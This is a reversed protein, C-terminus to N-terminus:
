PGAETSPGHRQWWAPVIGKNIKRIEGAIKTRELEIEKLENNIRNQAVRDRKEIASRQRAKADNYKANIEGSKARYRSLDIKKAEKGEQAGNKDDPEVPFAVAEDSGRPSSPKDRPMIPEAYALDSTGIAAISHKEIGVVGGRYYFSVRDASDWHQYTVFSAGNKLVILYSSFAPAPALCLACLIVVISSRKKM